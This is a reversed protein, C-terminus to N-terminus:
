IQSKPSARMTSSIDTAWSLPEAAGGFILSIAGEGFFNSPRDQETVSSINDRSSIPPLEVTDTLLFFLSWTLKPIQILCKELSVSVM